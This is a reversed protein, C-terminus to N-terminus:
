RSRVVVICWNTSMNANSAIHHHERVWMTAMYRDSCVFVRNVLQQHRKMFWNTYEILWRMVVKNLLMFMHCQENAFNLRNDGHCQWNIKIDNCQKKRIYKYRQFTTGIRKITENREREIARSDSTNHHYWKCNPRKTWDHQKQTQETKIVPLLWHAIVQFLLRVISLQVMKNLSLNADTKWSMSASISFRRVSLSHIM